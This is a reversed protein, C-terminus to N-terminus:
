PRAIQTASVSAGGPQGDDIYNIQLGSERDIQFARGPAVYQGSGFVAAVGFAIHIPRPGLNVGFVELRLANAAFMTQTAGASSGNHHTITGGRLFDVTTVPGSSGGTPASSSIPVLNANLVVAAPAGGIEVVELRINEDEVDEVFPVRVGPGVPYTDVLTWGATVPDPSYYVNFNVLGPGNNQISGVLQNYGRGSREPWIYGALPPVNINRLSPGALQITTQGTETVEFGM